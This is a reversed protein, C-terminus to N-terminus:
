HLRNVKQCEFWIMGSNRRTFTPPAEEKEALTQFTCLWNIYQTLIYVSVHVRSYQIHTSVLVLNLLDAAQVSEEQTRPEKLKMEQSQQEREM